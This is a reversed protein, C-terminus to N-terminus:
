RSSNEGNTKGKELVRIEANLTEIRGKYSNVRQEYESIQTERRSIEKRVTDIAYQIKNSAESCEKGKLKETLDEEIGTVIKNSYRNVGRLYSISASLNQSRIAQTESFNVAYRQLRNRLDSLEEIENELVHIKGQIDQINSQYQNISNYLQTIEM